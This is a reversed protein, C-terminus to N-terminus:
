GKAAPTAAPAAAGEDALEGQGPELVQWIASRAFRIRVNNKDDVRLLVTGEDGGVVTGHIGANTVVKAHKAVNKLMAERQKRERGAPRFVLFYFIAFVILIPPLLDM